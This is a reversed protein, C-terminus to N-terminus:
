RGEVIRNVTEYDLDGLHSLIFDVVGLNDRFDEAHNRLDAMSGADALLQETLSGSVDNDAIEIVTEVFEEYTGIGYLRPCDLSHRTLHYAMKAMFEQRTM